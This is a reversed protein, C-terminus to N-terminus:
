IMTGQLFNKKVGQKIFGSMRSIDPRYCRLIYKLIVSNILCTIPKLSHKDEKGKLNKSYTLLNLVHLVLNRLSTSLYFLTGLTSIIQVNQIYM